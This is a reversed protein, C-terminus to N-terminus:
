FVLDPETGLEAEYKGQHCEVVAAAAAAIITIIITVTVNIVALMYATSVLALATKPM